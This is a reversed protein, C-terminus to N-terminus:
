PFLYDRVLVLVRLDIKWLLKREEEETWEIDDSELVFRYADDASKTTKVPEQAEENHEIVPTIKGPLEAM